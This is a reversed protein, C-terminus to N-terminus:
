IKEDKVIHGAEIEFLYARKSKFFSTTENYNLTTSIFNQGLDIIYSLIKHERVHDIESFLDDILIIPTEKTKDKIILFESIMLAILVTKHQGRSGYKRLERENIYFLVDDRHPGILTNGQEIESKKIKALKKEFGDHIENLDNYDITSNYQLRIKEDPVTLHSHVESLKM